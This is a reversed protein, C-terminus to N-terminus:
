VVEDNDRFSYAYELVLGNGGVALLVVEKDEQLQLSIHRYTFPNQRLRPLVYEKFNLLVM